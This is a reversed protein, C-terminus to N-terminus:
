VNVEDLNEKELLESHKELIPDVCEELFEDVQEASRGIFLSPDVLADLQSHVASFAPDSAVRQMLDNPKGEGKVAMGAAMSHIRIREHLDQRDGGAKVCAMLINETAMFPLESAVRAKVVGPWVHMGDGINTLLTVIVDAALFGEPLYM